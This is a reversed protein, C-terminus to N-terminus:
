LTSEKPLTLSTLECNKGGFGIGIGYIKEYGRNIFPRPYDKRIIQNLASVAAKKRASPTNVTNKLELIVATSLDESVLIIDSYGDGSEFEDKIQINQSAASIGLIGLLFGHYYFESSSNRISIFQKLLANILKQADETHNNLLLNQLRLAKNFWEHNDASYISEFKEKFCEFIELNPIRIKVKRGRPPDESLTVYGTHLMMTMFADFSLHNKIDPYTTFEDLEIEVDEGNMLKQLNEINAYNNATISDKTYLSILDNGSTNVWYPEPKLSPDQMVNRCYNLLSWPCYLHRRGFHYGDYWRDIESRRDELGCDNLLKSTEERTFGFFGTYPEKDMDFVSFNNADTFVSQHAIKLCGSIIGKYLWPDPEQKFTNISIQKILQLMDDYYPEKAVVAKQLPVDYEDIIVIVQKGYEKYLMLALQPIFTGCIAVAKDLKEPEFLSNQQLICFDAVAKFQEKISSAQKSSEALFAFKDYLQAIKFIIQAVAQHYYNGEIGKFSLSIVPYEGMFKDRLQSFDDSAVALHRGNDLFLKQQRSKDGPHRYNIECFEKIMSLNLTKGFRRPRIFLPNTDDGLGTFLEKLYSTKDVYYGNREILDAFNECGNKFVIGSTM